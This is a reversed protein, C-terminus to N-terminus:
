NCLSSIQTELNNFSISNYRKEGIMNPNKLREELNKNIQQLQLATIPENFGLWVKGNCYFIRAKEFPRENKSNVPM